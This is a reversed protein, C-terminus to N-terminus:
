IHSALDYESDKWSMVEHLTTVMLLGPRKENVSDCTVFAVYTSDPSIALQSIRPGTIVYHKQRRLKGFQSSSNSVQYVYFQLITM